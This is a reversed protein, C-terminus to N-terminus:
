VLWIGFIKGKWYSILRLFFVEDGLLVNVGLKYRRILWAVGEVQHPKLTAKIGLEELNLPADADRADHELIIKAAVQLRQQYNM